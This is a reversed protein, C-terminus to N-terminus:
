ISIALDHMNTGGRKDPFIMILDFTLIWLCNNLYTLEILLVLFMNFNYQTEGFSTSYTPCGLNRTLHAMTLM